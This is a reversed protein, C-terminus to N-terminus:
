RWYEVRSGLSFSFANSDQSRRQSTKTCHTASKLLQAALIVSSKGNIPGGGQCKLHKIQAPFPQISTPRAMKKRKDAQVM